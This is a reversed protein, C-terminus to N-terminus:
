AARGRKPKARGPGKKPVSASIEQVESGKRAASVVDSSKKGDMKALSQRLADMLDVVPALKGPREVSSVDKGELRADILKRLNEEYTDHFREPEFKDALASIL